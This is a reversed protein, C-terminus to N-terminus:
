EKPWQHPFLGDLAAKGEKKICTTLIEDAIFKQEETLSTISGVKQALM